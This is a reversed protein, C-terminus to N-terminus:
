NGRYRFARRFGAKTAENVTKAYFEGKLPEIITKDYQQDFPLHYIKDGSVGINCKIRPFDDNHKIIDVRIGLCKAFRLATDSLKTTSTFVPYVNVWKDEPINNEICYMITTGYLQALHKEHITKDKSWRKCQIILTEGNKKAILDRGMDELKKQAGFEQVTWGKERYLYACYMEYEVGLIDNKKNHSNVYRDLALQNRENIGMTEYQEKPIYNRVRDYNENFFEMSEYESLAQLDEEDDVYNGLEPFTTLLFDYKYRMLKYQQIYKKTEERLENIRKAEEYAPRTKNVLYQESEGYHLTRFDSYLSAMKSLPSKSELIEKYSDVEKKLRWCEYDKGKLTDEYESKIKSIRKTCEKEKQMVVLSMEREKRRSQKINEDLDEEKAKLQSSLWKNRDFLNDHQRSLDSCRKNLSKVRTNKCYGYIFLAILSIGIFVIRADEASM